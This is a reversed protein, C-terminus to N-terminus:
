HTQAWTHGVKADAEIPIRYDFYEGAMLAARKALESAREAIERTRCACQIEDHVWCLPVYDGDWGMVYGAEAMLQHFIVNWRKAIIAGDSQLQLNLASHSSKVYLKRGDLGILYGRRSQKTIKRIVDRYAPIGQQFKARLEKGRAKLTHTPTNPPCVITGIKEDGAGYLTAYLFTKADDRTPLGAAQQNKAHPDGSLVLTAYEGNDFEALHHSFNRLELGKLDSGMMWWGSPVTFLNRCEWGYRGSRGKLVISKKLSGDDKFCEPLPQGDLGLILKNFSGDKNKVDVIKVKPVQAINPSVHSARGSRTGGVNCYAHILGSPTVLKLWANAGDALMGLLKKHFFTEALIDCIPWHEALGRLVEDDVTPSGNETFEAPEWDYIKTLRDIIMPRSNPNFDKSVIECYPAGAVVDSRRTHDKFHLSKTPVRVEGWRQRSKDEGYEERPVGKYTKKPAFWMGFHQKSEATLRDFEIRVKTELNKAELVNFPFGYQEQLFMLEHVQHELLIAEEAWGTRKIKEWLDTALETDDICYPVGRVADWDKWPDKGEARMEKAYDGKHRGLRYGWAALEHRGILHGPISGQRFRRFDRDKEDAFVMRSLVLTDRVKGRPAFDPYLKEIAPLDFDIINHGLIVDAEEIIGVADDLEDGEYAYTRGRVGDKIVCLSIVHIKTLEPLLGDTESDFVVEIM